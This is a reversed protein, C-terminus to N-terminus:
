LDTTNYMTCTCCELTYLYYNSTQSTLGKRWEVHWSKYSPIFFLEAYYYQLLTYMYNPLITRDVHPKFYIKTRKIFKEDVVCHSSPTNWRKDINLILKLFHKVEVGSVANLVLGTSTPETVQHEVEGNLVQDVSGQSYKHNNEHCDIPRSRLEVVNVWQRKRERERERVSM